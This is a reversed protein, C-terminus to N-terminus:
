AVPRSTSAEALFASAPEGRRRGGPGSGARACGARGGAQAGAAGEPLSRRVCRGEDEIDGACGAFSHLRGCGAFLGARYANRGLFRHCFYDAHAGEPPSRILAATEFGDMGPMNVDLLIVAFDCELLMRLPRKARRAAIVNQGLVGLVSELVLIKEPLDDVVLIDVKDDIACAALVTGVLAPRCAGGEVAMNRLPAM